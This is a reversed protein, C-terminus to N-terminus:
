SSSKIMDLLFITASTEARERDENDHILGKYILYNILRDRDIEFDKQFLACYFLFCM